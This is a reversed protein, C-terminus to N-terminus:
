ALTATGPRLHLNDRRKSLESTMSKQDQMVELTLISMSDVIERYFLLVRCSLTQNCRAIPPTAAAPKCEVQLNAPGDAAV